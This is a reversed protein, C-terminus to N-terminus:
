SLFPALGRITSLPLFYDAGTLSCKAFGSSWCQLNEIITGDETRVGEITSYHTLIGNGSRYNDSSTRKDDIGEKFLEAVEDQTLVSARSQGALIQEVKSM